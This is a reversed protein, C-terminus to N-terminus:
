AGCSPSTVSAAATRARKVAETRAEGSAVLYVGLCIVLTGVWRAVTVDEHLIYRALLTGIIFSMSTLPLVYSLDARSLLALYSYFQIGLLPIAILLWHSAFIIFPVRLLDRMSRVSVEGIEDMGIKLMLEGVSVTSVTLLLLGWIVWNAQWPGNM